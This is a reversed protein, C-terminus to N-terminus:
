PCTLLVPTPTQRVTFYTGDGVQGDDNWGFCALSGDTMRACTTYGGSRVDPEQGLRSLGAELRRPPM